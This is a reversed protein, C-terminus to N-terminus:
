PVHAWSKRSRIRHVTARNVGLTAAMASLGLGCSRIWLVDSETLKVKRRVGTLAWARPARDLRNHCTHCRPEYVSLNTSFTLRKGSIEQAVNEWTDWSHAWARAPASCDVCSFNTASGRERVLRKHVQRHTEPVGLRARRVAAKRRNLEPDANVAAVKARHEDSLLRGTLAESIKRRHEESSKTGLRNRSMERLRAVEAPSPNHRWCACGPACKARFHKRCQCGAQCKTVPM